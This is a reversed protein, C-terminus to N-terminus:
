TLLPLEITTCAGGGGRNELVVHGGMRRITEHALLLGVGLGNEKTTVPLRGAQAQVEPSIGGGEDEIKMVLRDADWSAHLRVMLPSVEASNNLINILAQTLAREALIEPAPSTGEHRYELRADRQLTRWEELVGDLYADVPQARGSQAQLEGASASIISLAQKCRDIQQRLIDIKRVSESDLGTGSSLDKALIAMTGLPTGLEHAAGAALTGLEVLREDRLAKERAAALRQDRERLSQAMNAVLYAVLVATVVFGLWMGLVHLQFGGGHGAHALGGLPIYWFMLASYALAALGALIWTHRRQLVTAAIFVPVLYFWSVPNTAGGSFYLVGSFGAADALLHAFLEGETVRDYRQLRVWTYLNLCAFAGMIFLLPFLPVVVGLFRVAIGIAAVGAGILLNRLVFLRRLNLHGTEEYRTESGALM